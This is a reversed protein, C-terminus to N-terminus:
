YIFGKTDFEGLGKTSRELYRELQKMMLPTRSLDRFWGAGDSSEAGSRHVEWLRRGGNARGVHVHSFNTTWDRLTRWKFQTSGGVFIVDPTPRVNKVQTISMGDQVALAVPYMKSYHRVKDVRNTLM